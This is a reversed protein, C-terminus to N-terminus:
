VCYHVTTRELQTTHWYIDHGVHSVPYILTARAPPTEMSCHAPQPQPSLLRTFTPLCHVLLIPSALERLLVLPSTGNLQPQDQMHMFHPCLTLSLIINRWYSCQQLLLICHHPIALLSTSTIFHLRNSRLEVIQM